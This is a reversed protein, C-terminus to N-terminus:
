YYWLDHKADFDNDDALPWVQIDEANSQTKQKIFSAVQEATEEETYAIAIGGIGVAESYFRYIHPM